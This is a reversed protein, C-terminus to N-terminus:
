KFWPRSLLLDLGARQRSELNWSKSKKLAPQMSTWLDKWLEDTSKWDRCPRNLSERELLKLSDLIVGTTDTPQGLYFVVQDAHHYIHGLHSVQHGREQDNSQDICVADVWLTRDIEESRLGQLALYLNETVNLTKGDLKISASLENGGWTYSLAEYSILSDSNLWTQFLRCEIDPGTGELLVLLRFAPGELDILEYEYFDM